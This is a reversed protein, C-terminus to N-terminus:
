IETVSFDKFSVDMFDTRIGVHGPSIIKEGHFNNPNDVTSLVTKWPGRDFSVKFIISVSQDPNNNTQMYIGIVHDISLLLPQSSRNYALRPSSSGNFFNDLSVTALTKYVGNLKRKIVATNDVRVGALYLSQSDAYRSMLFVGNTNNRNPSSSLHYSDITFFVEEDINQWEKKNILRFINQPHSGNDTDRSNSKAYIKRWKSSQDLSGHLTEAVNNEVYFYAGSDVWWCKDSSMLENESEELTLNAPFSACLNKAQQMNESPMYIHFLWYALLFGGIFFVGYLANKRAIDEPWFKKMKTIKYDRM